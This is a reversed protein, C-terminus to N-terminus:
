QPLELLVIQIQRSARHVVPELPDLRHQRRNVLRQARPIPLTFEVLGVFGAPPNKHKQVPFFAVTPPQPHNEALVGHDIQEIAAPTVLHRFRM